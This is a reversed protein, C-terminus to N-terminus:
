TMEERTAKGDPREPAPFRPSRARRKKARERHSASVYGRRDWPLTEGCGCGCHREGPVIWAGGNRRLAALIRRTMARRPLEGRVIRGAMRPTTGALAAFDRSPMSRALAVLQDYQGPGLGQRGVTYDVRFRRLDGRLGDNSADLVPSVRGKYIVSLPTVVVSALGDGSSVSGFRVARAALSELQVVGSRGADLADTSVVVPEGSARDVWGLSAWDELPGGPDLAVVSRAPQQMIDSVIGEILRSGVRAGLSAPLTELVQPSTVLLRRVTPFPLAGATDWPARQRFAQDRNRVRAAVFRVEREVAAKSWALGGEACRGQLAAPDSWQGGLGSETWDVLVPADDTGRYEVHRKSGFVICRLPEEGPAPVRKWTPWADPEPSMRDFAAVLGAVEADSLEHVTSGDPLQLTGGDPSAPIISSDTDRYVVRSGLSRVKRDMVALLLRAGATITVGLPAFTWPGANEVTRWQGGEIRSRGDGSKTRHGGRYVLVDDLREFNGSVLSNVVAHLEAALESAGEANAQRRRRVLGLVPDTQSDLVLGPYVPVRRRLGDQRGEPVLKVARVIRPVKGSLIAAAVVDPWSYFMTRGRAYVPVTETRGDQRDPDDLAVPFVDGDPVVECLTLGFRAWVAPDLVVSPDSAAQRCLARVERLVSRRVLRDATVIQWWAIAHATIPYASTIDLAIAGFPRGVLAPDCDNWGGHFAEWWGADEAPRLPFRKIPPDVRFCRLLHDAIGAPSQAFAIPFRVTGDARDQATTFWRGAEKDLALGLAHVSRVADAMAAAGAADVTVTVPLASAAVGFHRSHDVFGAARDADLVYAASLVDLFPAGHTGFGKPCPGFRVTWGKRRSLITIPPRHSSVRGIDGHDPRPTGWGPLWVQWSQANRGTRREVYEAVLGVIRGQDAGVVPGAGSNYANPAFAWPKGPKTDTGERTAKPDFFEGLTVVRWPAPGTGTDLPHAKAWRRIGALAVRDRTGLDDPVVLIGHMVLPGRAVLAAMLGFTGGRTSVDGAGHWCISMRQALSRGRHEPGPPKWGDTGPSGRLIVPFETM